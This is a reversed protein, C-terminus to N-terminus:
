TPSHRNSPMLQFPMTQIEQSTVNASRFGRCIACMSVASFADSLRWHPSLASLRAITSVLNTAAPAALGKQQLAM